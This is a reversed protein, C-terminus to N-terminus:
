LGGALKNEKVNNGCMSVSSNQLFLDSMVEDFFEVLNVEPISM